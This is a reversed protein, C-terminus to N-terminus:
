GPLVCSAGDIKQSGLVYGEYRSCFFLPDCSSRSIPLASLLNRVPYVAFSIVPIKVFLSAFAYLETSSLGLNRQTVLLLPPDM